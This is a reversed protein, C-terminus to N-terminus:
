PIHADFQFNLWCMQNQDFHSGFIMDILFCSLMTRSLQEYYLSHQMAHLLTITISGLWYADFLACDTIPFAWADHLKIYMIATGTTSNKLSPYLIRFTKQCFILQIWTFAGYPSRPYPYIHGLSVTNGFMDRSIRFWSSGLRDGTEM